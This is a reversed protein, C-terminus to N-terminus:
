SGSLSKAAYILMFQMLMLGEIWFSTFFETTNYRSAIIFGMSILGSAIYGASKYDFVVASNFYSLAYILMFVLLLILSLQRAKNSGFVIPITKIKNRKDIEIDRIDFPITISFLFLFRTALTFGTHYSFLNEIDNEFVPFIVTVGSWVGAVLFIKLFPLHRLSKESKTKLSFPTAYFVSLAFLPILLLLTRFNLFFSTAFLGVATLLTITTIMPKNLVAWKSRQSLADSLEFSITFAKRYNYIFLTSFFVFSSSTNLLELKADFYLEQLSLFYACLAVFINGFVVTNAIKDPFQL